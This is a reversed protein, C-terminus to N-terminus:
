AGALPPVSRAASRLAECVKAESGASPVPPFIGQEAVVGRQELRNLGLAQAGVWAAPARIVMALECRRWGRLAARTVGMVIM